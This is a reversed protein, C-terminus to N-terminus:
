NSKKNSYFLYFILLLFTFFYQSIFQVLGVKYPWSTIVKFIFGFVSVHTDLFSNSLNYLQSSAFPLYHLEIGLNIMHGFLYGSLLIVYITTWFFIKKLPIVKNKFNILFVVIASVIVGIISFLWSSGDLTFNFLIVEIAERSSITLAIIFLPGFASSAIQEGGMVRKTLKPMTAVLYGISIVVVIELIFEFQDHSFGGSREFINIIIATIAAIVVGCIGGIVIPNKSLKVGRILNGLFFLLLLSELGERLGIIFSQM